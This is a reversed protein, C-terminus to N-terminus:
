SRSGRARAIEAVEATRAPNEARCIAFDRALGAARGGHRAALLGIGLFGSAAVAGAGLRIVAVSDCSVAQLLAVFYYFLSFREHGALLGPGERVLSARASTTAADWFYPDHRRAILSIALFAAAASAALFRRSQREAPNSTAVRLVLVAVIAVLAGQAWALVAATMTATGQYVDPAYFQLPVAALKFALGAVIL